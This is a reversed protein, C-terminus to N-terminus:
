ILFILQIKLSSNCLLTKKMAKNLEKEKIYFFKIKKYFLILKMDTKPNMGRRDVFTDIFRCGMEKLNELFVGKPISVYVECGQNLLEQILEKRFKYLGEANNALILVKM